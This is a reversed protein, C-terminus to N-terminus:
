LQTFDWLNTGLVSEPFDAVFDTYCFYEHAGGGIESGACICPDTDRDEVLAGAWREEDSRFVRLEWVELRLGNM